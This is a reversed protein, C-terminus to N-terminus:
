IKLKIYLFEVCNPLHANVRTKSFGLMDSCPSEINFIKFILSFAQIM